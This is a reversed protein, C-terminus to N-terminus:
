LLTLNRSLDHHVFNCPIYRESQEDLYILAVCAIKWMGWFINIQLRNSSSSSWQLTLHKRTTVSLAAFISHANKIFSSSVASLFSSDLSSSLSLRSSKWYQVGWGSLNLPHNLQTHWWNAVLQEHYTDLILANNYLVLQM